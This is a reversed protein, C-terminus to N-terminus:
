VDLTNMRRFIGPWHAQAVHQVCVFALHHATCQAPYWANHLTASIKMPTNHLTCKWTHLICRSQETYLLSWLLPHQNLSTSSWIGLSQDCLQENTVLIMMVTVNDRDAEIDDGYAEDVHDRYWDLPDVGAEEGPQMSQIYALHWHLELLTCGTIEM